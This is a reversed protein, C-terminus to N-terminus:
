ASFNSIPSKKILERQPAKRENICVFQLNKYMDALRVIALDLLTPPSKLRPVEPVSDKDEDESVESDWGFILANM